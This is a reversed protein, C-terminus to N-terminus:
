PGADVRFQAAAVEPDVRNEGLALAVLATYAGPKLRGNLDVIVRHAQVERSTGAAAVSGDAALIVYHAAPVDIKDEEGRAWLPERVLRYERQFKELREIEPMIELREGRATLRAVWARRPIAFRDYSGVGLPNNLDRFVQLVVATDTWKELQYPGNTVLFHGRRQVFQRLAAWRTQAEDAAVLRKLPEPIHNRRALEQLIAELEERTKPDRALDLWRVGRRRAEAASFAGVGRKVAEEMLVTVHWPVASWPPALAALEQADTSAASLYVEVVPVVYTFTVDSYRRVDSDVKVVRVGLLAQRATATAAEIAPDYEPPSGPARKVSWRAAFVYPYLADAATIRTNDHAASAWLRYTVRAKATKGKGVPVLAGTGAEPVLADEPIDLGSPGAVAVEAPVARHAIFGAAYPAPLLGPDGLAGWLLRGPGDTFGAIPNWAAAPRGAGVKMWGNWPFDKLKATRVFIESSFGRHSDWAVNEIGQSFESNFVERRVTYGLVPRECGAALRQVLRRELDAREAPGDYALTVLRRYLDEVAQRAAADAIAPAQLLYAHFWGEKLWPPAFTAGAGSAHAALLGDLDVQEVAVDWDKPEAGRDKPPKLLLSPVPGRPVLRLPPGASATEVAKRAARALDWQQLYDAHYPTVAYPHPLYGARAGGLSKGARRVTACRVEASAAAPTSPNLRAVLYGGLSEAAAVNAPLRGGGFPDAGVYAHLASNRLLPAAAAPALTELRIEQPYYGPYFPMEHGARAPVAWAAVLVLALVLLVLV